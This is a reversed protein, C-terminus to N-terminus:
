KVVNLPRVMGLMAHPAGQHTPSPIFCLLIYQGEALDFEVYEYRGKSLGQAGGAPIVPMPGTPNKLYAEVDAMTKGPALRMVAMEHAEPGDNVIKWTQVGAKVTVGKPLEIGYDVLRVTLDAKPEAAAATQAATVQFGKTMGLALHPVGKADPVFCLQAYTGPKTFDLTAKQSQGPLLMGVGGVLDVMGLAAGENEKLKGLFGELTMGDPLRVIQVHHPEQGTNQLSLSTWGAPITEPSTYKYESGQVQVTAAHNDHAFAASPTALLAAALLTTLRTRMTKKNM